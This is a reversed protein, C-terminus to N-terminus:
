IGFNNEPAYEATKSGRDYRHANDAKRKSAQRSMDSNKPHYSYDYRYNAPRHNVPVQHLITDVSNAYSRIATRERRNRYRKHRKIRHRVRKRANVM